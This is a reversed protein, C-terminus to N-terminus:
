FPYFTMQLAILTAKLNLYNNSLAKYNLLITHKRKYPYHSNSDRIGITTVISNYIYIYIYIFKLNIKIFKEM